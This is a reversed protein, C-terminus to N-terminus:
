FEKSYTLGIAWLFTSTNAALEAKPSYVYTPQLNATFGGGLEYSMACSLTIGSMGSVAVSTSTPTSSRGVVRGSKLMKKYSALRKQDITQSIFSFNLSPNITLKDKQFTQDFSLGYYSASGGGFYSSYSLGVNVVKTPFTMGVSFSNTLNALANLSDDSYKFNSYEASFILWSFISHTYGLAVSWRDFGGGSGLLSAGTLELSFGTTHELRVGYLLLALDNSLDVGRSIDKNQYQSHASATWSTGQEDTTDEQARLTTPTVVVISAFLIWLSLSSWIPILGNESM